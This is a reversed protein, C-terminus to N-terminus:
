KKLKKKFFLLEKENETSEINWYAEKGKPVSFYMVTSSTGKTLCDAIYTSYSGTSETKNKELMERILCVNIKLRKERLTKTSYVSDLLKNYTDCHNQFIGWFQILIAQAINISLVGISSNQDHPMIRFSWTTSM